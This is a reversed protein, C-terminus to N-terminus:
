QAGRALLEPHLIPELWELVQTESVGERQQVCLPHESRALTFFPIREPSDLQVLGPLGQTPSCGWINNALKGSFPPEEHQLPDEWLENARAWNAHSVEVWIGWSLPEDRGEVLFPM